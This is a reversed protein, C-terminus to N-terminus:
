DRFYCILFLAFASKKTAWSILLACFLLKYCGKPRTDIGGDSRSVERQVFSAIFLARRSNGVCGLFSNIDVNDTKWKQTNKEKAYM